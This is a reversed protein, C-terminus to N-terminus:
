AASETTEFKELDAKYRELQEKLLDTGQWKLYPAWRYDEPNYQRLRNHLAKIERSLQGHETLQPKIKPAMRCLKVRESSFTIKSTGFFDNLTYWRRASASVITLKGNLTAVTDSPMSELIGSLIARKVTFPYHGSGEIPIGVFRAKSAAIRTLRELPIILDQEAPKAM